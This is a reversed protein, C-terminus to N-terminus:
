PPSIILSGGVLLLLYKNSFGSFYVFVIAWFNALIIIQYGFIGTWAVQILWLIVWYLLATSVHGSSTIRIAALLGIGYILLGLVSAQWYNFKKGAYNFFGLLYIVGMVNFLLEALGLGNPGASAKLSPTFNFIAWAIIAGISGALLFWRYIRYYKDAVM